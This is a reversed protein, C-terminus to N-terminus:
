LIAKRYTKLDTDTKKKSYNGEINILILVMLFPYDSTIFINNHFSIHILYAFLVLRFFITFNPELHNIYRLLFLIFFFFLIYGLFSYHFGINILGNHSSLLLIHPHGFKRFMDKKAGMYEGDTIGLPHNMVAYVGTVWLLPRSDGQGGSSIKTIRSNGTTLLDKSAFIFLIAIIASTVMVLKYLGHRKFPAFFLYGFVLCIEALLLSRTQSLLSALFLIVLFVLYFKRKYKLYMYFSIAFSSIAYYSFMISSAFPGSLRFRNAYGGSIYIEENGLAGLARVNEVTSYLLKKIELMQPSIPSLPHQLFAFVCILFHIFLIINIYKIDKKAVLLFLFSFVLFSFCKIFETYVVEFEIDGLIAM